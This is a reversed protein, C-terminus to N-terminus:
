SNTLCPGRLASGSASGAQSPIVLPRTRGTEVEIERVYTQRYRVLIREGLTEVAVEEGALAECVFYRESRYKVCGKSNLRRVDAGSEYEWRPPSEQYVRGSPQYREAPVAMELAQHPRVQNYEQRFKETWAEWGPFGGGGDRELAQQMTRHLREVKGQTQPHRIGSFYLRIGQKMLAVTLHTLGHGNSTSWWLTGHDMLMAEPLGYPEFVRRLCQLTSEGNPDRLAFLGVLYRSHDDLISLPYIAGYQAALPEKVGKFDMQWLQNPASREFRQFAPRHSDEPRIAGHRALVRNITAVSASHGERELLVRLKLAGWGHQQRLELIRQQVESPAENPSRHPRRSREGLDEIRGVQQLRKRWRWGTIRHIGFEASLEELSDSQREARVVYRIREEMADTQKWPM